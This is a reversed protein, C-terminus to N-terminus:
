MNTIEIQISRHTLIIARPNVFSIIYLLVDSYFQSSADNHIIYLMEKNFIHFINLM